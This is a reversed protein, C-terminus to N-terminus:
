RLGPQCIRWGSPMRRLLIIGQAKVAVGILARRALMELRNGAWDRGAGGSPLVRNYTREALRDLGAQAPALM